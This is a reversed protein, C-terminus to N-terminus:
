VEREGLRREGGVVLRRVNSAHSSLVLITVALASVVVPLSSVTAYVLPTLAFAASMSGVSVYRTVCVVLGFVFAAWLAAIPALVVFSGCATAVGKGGRFKLWIPFIHGAVAATAVLSQLVEDAGLSRAALVMVYGKSMDLALVALAISAGTTRLVNTAGTNGSGSYRVDAGGWYRALIFGFPIGGVVYATGVFWISM